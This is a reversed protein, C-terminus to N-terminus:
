WIENKKKSYIICIKTNVRKLPIDQNDAESQILLQISKQLEEEILGFHNVVYGGFEQDKFHRYDVYLTNLNENALM